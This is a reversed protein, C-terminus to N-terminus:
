IAQRSPSVLEWHHLPHYSVGSRGQKSEFLTFHGYVVRFAPPGAPAPPAATCHRFLTVHPQFPKRDRRAGARTAVDRLRQALQSLPAPVTEAGLWHVAPKPWYGTMNLLLQGGPLAARAVSADVSECLQELASPATEGVFALTVHFNAPPVPRGSGAGFQRDRWDAIQMAVDAALELGFFTRM